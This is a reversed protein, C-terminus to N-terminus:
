DRAVSVFSQGGETAVQKQLERVTLTKDAKPRHAETHAEPHLALLLNLKRENLLAREQVNLDHRCLNEDIEALEAELDNLDVITADIELWGIAKCAELRHYGAILRYGKGDVRVTIPNLLGVEEISSALAKLDKLARRHTGVEIRDIPIRKM